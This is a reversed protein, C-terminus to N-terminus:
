KVVRFQAPVCISPRISIHVPTPFLSTCGSETYRAYVYYTGVKSPQFTLSAARLAIGGTPQDYWDATANNTVTATLLPIPQNFCITFDSIIPTQPIPYQCVPLSVETEVREGLNNQATIMVVYDKGPDIKTITDAGVIGSSSVVSTNASIDYVIQYFREGLCTKPCIIKIVRFTPGAFSMQCFVTMLVLACGLVKTSNIPHLFM